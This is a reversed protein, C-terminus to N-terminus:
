HGDKAVARQLQRILERAVATPLTTRCSIRREQMEGGLDPLQEWGVIRVYTDRAEVATGTCFSSTVITPETLPASEEFADRSMFLHGLSRGDGDWDRM